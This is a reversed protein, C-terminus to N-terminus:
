KELKIIPENVHHFVENQEVISSVGIRSDNIFAGPYPSLLEICKAIAQQEVPIIGFTRGVTRAM